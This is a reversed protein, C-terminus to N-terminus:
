GVRPLRKVAKALEEVREDVLRIAQRVLVNHTRWENRFRISPASDPVSQLTRQASRIAAFAVDIAEDVPEFAFVVDLELDSREATHDDDSRKGSPCPSSFPDM